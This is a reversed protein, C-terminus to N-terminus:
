REETAEEMAREAAGAFVAFCDSAADRSPTAPGPVADRSV